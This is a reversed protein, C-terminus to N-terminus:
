YYRYDERDAAAKDRQDSKIENLYEQYLRLAKTYDEKTAHGNSYLEKIEQLSPADGCIVAIMFHKLSRDFNGVTKEKIALNARAVESGGMAALEFYHNAKKEDVGIGKGKDYSYGVSNCARVYGLEAARLFLELAKVHDVPYGHTGERYFYGLRYIAIPDGTEVRKKTREVAEEHSSPTPIRCFACKENDVENGQNDYLPANMCGCCIIKGCCSKYTSGSALTPMRLFCIPCDEDTPPPQKFLKEDYLEAAIRLEEDHKETALSIYEECDKKHKKKHVKKCVANCYKVKKCKNCINNVDEGEKGCNACVSVDATSLKQLTDIVECVNDNLKSAGEKCEESTSM